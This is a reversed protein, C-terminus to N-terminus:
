HKPADRSPAPYRPPEAADHLFRKLRNRLSKCEKIGIASKDHEILIIATLDPRAQCSKDPNTHRKLIDHALRQVEIDPVGGINIRIRKQLLCNRTM